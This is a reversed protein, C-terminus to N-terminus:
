ALEKAVLGSLGGLALIYVSNQMNNALNDITYCLIVMSILAAPAVRPTFWVRAPYYYTFLAVPLLLAVTITALGFIGTTGFAIVWFSDTVSIDDGWANYVRSRGWGGWGLIMRERAKEILVRENDFRFQLSQARDPNLTNSVFAVVQDGNFNGTTAVYLYCPIIATLLIILISTRLWKATFIVAMSILLYIWAGASQILIVVFVLLSVIWQIPINWFRHLVGSQWLWLAVLAAVMMWLAVSLGHVNFIIPRYGGQRISQLFAEPNSSPIGYLMLHLQPSMKFEFLCLPVYILGGALIGMAAARMGALSNLYLRGFFYPIGWIVITESAARFGDYTGLDNDLSTLFPSICWLLMPLDILSPRFTSLRASDFLLMAIAVAYCTASLKGYAPFGPILYSYVPLFLYAGIFSILLAKQGPLYSFLYLVFPIWGFLVLPVLIFM